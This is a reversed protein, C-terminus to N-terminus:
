EAAVRSANEEAILERLLRRCQMGPADANTDITQTTPGRDTMAQQAELIAKDELFVGTFQTKYANEVDADDLGFHRAHAYFYHTTRETEPTPANLVRMEVGRDRHGPRMDTGTDVSGADNVSFCPMETHCTVWRDVNGEFKGAWQYFPAAPRNMVNRVMHVSRATRETKFAFDVIAENGISGAHVYSLHTIDQLNDTIFEYNCAVPLPTAGNGKVTRWDPDDVWHWNPILSEDVREPDGMWIWIWNWKEILPYSKVRAGPPITSQGPVGVCRGDAAFRLGHYGCQLEDGVLTGMSLPLARHCCRDELAVPTGDDTRYLVVPEDLLTRALPQHGVEEDWAAVYWCNRLFM